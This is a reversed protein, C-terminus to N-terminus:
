DNTRGDWRGLVYQLRVYRESGRAGGPSQADLADVAEFVSLFENEIRESADAAPVDEAFQQTGSETSVGGLGGAFALTVLLFVLMVKKPRNVINDDAWDVFRQYDLRM